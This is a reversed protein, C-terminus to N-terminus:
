IIMIHWKIYWICNKNRFNRNLNGRTSCKQQIKRPSSFNRSSSPSSISLVKPYSSPPAEFIPPWSTLPAIVFSKMATVRSPPSRPNWKSPERTSSIRPIVPRMGRKAKSSSAKGRSFFFIRSVRSVRIEVPWRVNWNKISRRLLLSFSFSRITYLYRIININELYKRRCDCNVNGITEPDVLLQM